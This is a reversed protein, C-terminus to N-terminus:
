DDLYKPAAELRRKSETLFTVRDGHREGAFAACREASSQLRINSDRPITDGFITGRIHRARPIAGNRLSTTQDCSASAESYFDQSHKIKGNIVQTAQQLCVNKANNFMTAFVRIDEREEVSLGFTTPISELRARLADTECALRHGDVPLEECKPTAGSNYDDCYTISTQRALEPSQFNVHVFLLKQKVLQNIESWDARVGGNCIEDPLGDKRCLNEDAPPALVRAKFEGLLRARNAALLADFSAFASRYDFVWGMFSGQVPDEDVHLGQKGFADVSLVVVSDCDRLLRHNSELLARKVGLLGLNDANGGDILHIYRAQGIQRELASERFRPLYVPSLLGPFAASASVARALPISNIDVGLRALDPRAFLFEAGFPLPAHAASGEQTAVTANIFIPPRAPNLDQFRLPSGHGHLLVASNITSELLDTRSLNGFLYATLVTPDALQRVMSTKLNKALVDSTLAESWVPRGPPADPTDYSAGFLAATISGGSVAFIGDIKSAVGLNELEHIVSAALYAARSGGGSLTVFFATKRRDAACINNPM